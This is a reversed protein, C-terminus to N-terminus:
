HSHGGAGEAPLVDLTPAPSALSAPKQGAGPVQVWDLRGQVCVQRVPWYLTGAADPLRAQLVFEDYHASDLMDEATRATWTIRTVETGSRELAINWGPRPMPRAGRVGAPIDVVVQRTPSDGCGHGIRFTAKYHTGAIAAPWELGVHARVPLSALSAVVACALAARALLRHSM